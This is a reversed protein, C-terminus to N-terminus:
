LNKYKIEDMIATLKVLSVDVRIRIVELVTQSTSVSYNAMLSM